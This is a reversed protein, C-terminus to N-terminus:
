AKEKGWHPLQIKPDNSWFFNAVVQANGTYLERFDVGAQIVFFTWWPQECRHM